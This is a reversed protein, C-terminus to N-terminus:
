GRPIGAATAGLVIVRDAPGFHSGDNSLSALAEGAAPDLIELRLVYKATRVEVRNHAALDRLLLTKLDGARASATLAMAVMAACMASFRLM